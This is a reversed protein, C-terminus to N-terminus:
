NEGSAYWTSDQSKLHGALSPQFWYDLPLFEQATSQGKGIECRWRLM